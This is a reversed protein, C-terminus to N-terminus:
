QSVQDAPRFDRALPYTVYPVNDHKPTKSRKRRVLGAMWDVDDQRLDSMGKGLMGCNLMLLYHLKSQGSVVAAFRKLEDETWTIVAKRPVTFSYDRKEPTAVNRIAHEAHHRFFRRATRRTPRRAPRCRLADPGGQAAAALWASVAAESAGLSTAIDRQKWGLQKLRLAQKRRWERFDPASFPEATM